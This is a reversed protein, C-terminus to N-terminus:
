GSLEPKLPPNNKHRSDQWVKNERSVNDLIVQYM